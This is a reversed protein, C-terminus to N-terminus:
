EVVGLAHWRHQGAFWRGSQWSRRFTGVHGVPDIVVDVRWTQGPLNAPLTAGQEHLARYWGHASSCRLTARPPGAVGLDGVVLEAGADADEEVPGWCHISLHLPDWGGDAPNATTISAATPRSAMGAPPDPRHVQRLGLSTGLQEYNGGGFWLHHLMADLHRGWVAEILALRRDELPRGLQDWRELGVAPSPWGLSYLMLHMMPTWWATAEGLEVPARLPVALAASPDGVARWVTPLWRGWELQEGMAEDSPRTSLPADTFRRLRESEAGVISRRPRIGDDDAASLPGLDLYREVFLAAFSALSTGNLQEMLQEWSVSLLRDRHEPTLAARVADVAAWLEHDEDAGVAAVHAVDCAGNREQAAALLTNRWMQNADGHAIRESTGPQFWGCSESLRLWDDHVYVKDSPSEVYKTEVGLLGQRGDTTRHRVAIDFATRGIRRSPDTPAWEASVYETDACSVGFLSQVLEDRDDAHHLVAALSFAMPTSSLMNRRLRGMELTGHEKRVAVVRREVYALIQADGLFNLARDANVESQALWSGVPERRGGPGNSAYKANLRQERYWSQLARRRARMPTDSAVRLVPDDWRLEARREM